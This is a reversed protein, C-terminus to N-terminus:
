GCATGATKIVGRSVAFASGHRTRRRLLEAVLKPMGTMRNLVAQVEQRTLVVPVRRSHKARTINEMWELQRDLVERYLFLIAALAQNQTTATVKGVLALHTLFQEVEQEGMESPHRKNHFLIFRRIWQVYSEETRLSYHKFRLKGRVRDLLKPPNSSDSM